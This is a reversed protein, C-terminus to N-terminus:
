LDIIGCGNVNFGMQILIFEIIFPIIFILAASILRRVFKGQSKKIEDEKDTGTIKIFDLISLIIVMVPVIYKVWRVINAIWLIVRDTLGCTRNEDEIVGLEKLKIKLNLCLNICSDEKSNYDQTAFINSCYKKLTNLSNIDKSENYDTFYKSYM